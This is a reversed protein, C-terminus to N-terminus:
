LRTHRCSECESLLEQKADMYEDIHRAPDLVGTVLGAGMGRGRTWIHERMLELQMNIQRVRLAAERSRYLVESPRMLVERAHSIEVVPM